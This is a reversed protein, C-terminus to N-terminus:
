KVAGKVMVMVPVGEPPQEEEISRWRSADATVWAKPERREKQVWAARYYLRLVICIVSNM